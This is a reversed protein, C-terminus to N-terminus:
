QELLSQIADILEPSDPTTAPALRMLVEGDGGVLFKAFNWEIDPGDGILRHYLPHRNPGNVDIKESLLFDVGFRSRTFSQIQASTGPEQAGFQNCPCGLVILGDPGSSFQQHLKQLADYQGM